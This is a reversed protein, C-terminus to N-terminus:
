DPSQQITREGSERRRAERVIVVSPSQVYTAM